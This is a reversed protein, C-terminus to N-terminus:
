FRSCSLLQYSHDSIQDPSTSFMVDCLLDLVDHVFQKSQVLTVVASDPVAQAVLFRAQDRRRDEVLVEVVYPVSAVCLETYDHEWGM